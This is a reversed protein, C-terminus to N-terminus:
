HYTDLLQYALRPSPIVAVAVVAVVVLVPLFHHM